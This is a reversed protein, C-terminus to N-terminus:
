GFCKDSDFEAITLIGIWPWHEVELGGSFILFGSTKLLYLCPFNAQFSNEFIKKAKPSKNSRNKKKQTGHCFAM